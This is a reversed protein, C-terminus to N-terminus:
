FILYNFKLYQDDIIKAIENILVMKKGKLNVTIKNDWNVSWRSIFYDMDWNLKESEKEQHIEVLKTEVLTLYYVNILKFKCFEISLCSYFLNFCGKYTTKKNYKDDIILQIM